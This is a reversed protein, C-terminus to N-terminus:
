RTKPKHFPIINDIEKEAKRPTINDIIGVDYSNGKVDTIAYEKDLLGHISANIKLVDESSLKAIITEEDAEDKGIVLEYEDNSIGKEKNLLRKALEEDVEEYLKDIYRVMPNELDKIYKEREDILQGLLTTLEKNNYSLLDVVNSSDTICEVLVKHHSLSYSYASNNENITQEKLWELIKPYDEEGEYHFEDCLDTYIYDHYYIDLRDVVSLVDYFEEQCIGGLGVGQNDLLKINGIEDRYYSFDFNELFSNLTMIPVNEKNKM